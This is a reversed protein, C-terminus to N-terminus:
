WDRELEILVSWPLKHKLEWFELLQVTGSLSIDFLNIWYSGNVNNYWLSLIISADNVIGNMYSYNVDIALVKDGFKNTGFCTEKSITHGDKKLQYIM